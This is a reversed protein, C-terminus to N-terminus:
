EVGGNLALPQWTVLQKSHAVRVLELLRRAEKEAVNRGVKTLRYYCRRREDDNRAAPRKASEEILESALLRKIAGYLTGPGLRITGQSRAAVEQMIGYGHRDGDALALLIHFESSKLPEIRKQRRAPETM